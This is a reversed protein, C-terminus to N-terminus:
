LMKDEIHQAKQWDINFHAFAVLRLISDFVVDGKLESLFYGGEIGEAILNKIKIMGILFFKEIILDEAEGSYTLQPKGIWNKRKTEIFDFLWTPLKDKWYGM